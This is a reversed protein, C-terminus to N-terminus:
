GKKRCLYVFNLALNFPTFYRIFLAKIFKRISKLKWTNPQFLEPYKNYKFTKEVKLGNIELFAKWKEKTASRELIQWEDSFFDGKFLLSIIQQFPYKNPLMIISFGDNKLVRSIERVGIEPNIYHELSGLCTVYDFYEEPWPLHEGNGVVIESNQTNKKAKKVANSSIDIGYTNLNRKEAIRLAWGGGCAVDLFRANPTPSLLNIVLKYFKDNDRIDSDEFMEDYFEKLKKEDIEPYKQM